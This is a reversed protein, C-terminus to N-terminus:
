VYRLDAELENWVAAWQPDTTLLEETKRCAHLVTTHDRGGFYRGIESLSKKSLRRAALMALGRARVLAARRAPGQMEAKKVRCRKAVVGAIAALEPGATDIPAEDALAIRVAAATIHHNTENALRVVFGHLQPVSVALRAALLSAAEPEITAKLREAFHAVLAVRTAHTPLEVSVTLGGMLRSALTPVLGRTESPLARMTIVARGGSESLVDLTRALEEHATTREAIEDLGEVVLLQVARHKARFDDVADAKRAHSLARAFDAATVHLIRDDARESRWVRILEAAALTKGTAAPGVLVVVDVVPEAALLQQVAWVLLRNEPGTLLQGLTSASTCDSTTSPSLGITLLEDLV